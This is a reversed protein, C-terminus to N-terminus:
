SASKQMHTSMCLFLLNIWDNSTNWYDPEQTKAEFNEKGVSNNSEKVNLGVSNAWDKSKM